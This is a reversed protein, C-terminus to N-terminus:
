RGNCVTFVYEYANQAVHPSATRSLRGANDLYFHTNTPAVFAEM